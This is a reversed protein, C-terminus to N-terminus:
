NVRYYQFNSILPIDISGTETSTMGCGQTIYELNLKNNIYLRPLAINVPMLKVECMLEYFAQQISMIKNMKEIIPNLFFYTEDQSNCEIKITQTPIFNSLFEGVDVFKEKKLIEIKYSDVLTRETKYNNVIYNHYKTGNMGYM